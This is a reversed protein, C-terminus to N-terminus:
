VSAFTHFVRIAGRQRRATPRAHVQQVDDRIVRRRPAIAPRDAGHGLKGARLSSSSMADEHQRSIRETRALPHASRVEETEVPVEAGDGARHQDPETM